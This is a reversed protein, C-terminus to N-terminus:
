AGGGREQDQVQRRYLHALREREAELLEIQSLAHEVDKRTHAAMGDVVSVSGASHLELLRESQALNHRQVRLRNEVEAMRVALGVISDGGFLANPDLGGSPEPGRLDWTGVFWGLADLGPLKLGPLIDVPELVNAFMLRLPSVDLVAAIVLLEQATVDRDGDEIKGLAVRHIPVGLERTKAALRVASLGLAERERKVARGISRGVGAESDHM